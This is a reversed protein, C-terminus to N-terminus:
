RPLRTIAMDERVKPDALRRQTAAYALTAIARLGDATPPQHGRVLRDRQSPAFVVVRSGHARVLRAERLVYRQPASMQWGSRDGSEAAFSMPASVVVIDLGADAMLDLNTPSFVGGDIYSEGSIIPPVFLGPVACSAAVALGPTTAPAGRKGFTVRSLDRVRVAPLWMPAAPFGGPLLLDCLRALEDLPLQGPAVLAAAVLGIRVRWPRRALAALVAGREPRGPPTVSTMSSSPLRAKLPVLLAAAEASLPRGLASDALDAPPLGARLSAATIAGGSTGLVLSADRADWGHVEHLATLVGAHWATAVVGGGGLVLGVRAM